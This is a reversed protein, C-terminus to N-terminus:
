KSWGTRERDELIQSSICAGNNYVAKESRGTTPCRSLCRRGINWHNNATVGDTSTDKVAFLCTFKTLNDVTVLIYKDCITWRPVHPCYRFSTTGNTYTTTTWTTERKTTEGDFMWHVHECTKECLTENKHVLLRSTNTEGDKRGVPSLIM